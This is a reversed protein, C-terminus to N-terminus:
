PAAALANYLAAGQVPYAKIWEYFSKALVPHDHLFQLFAIVQAPHAAYWSAFANTVAAHVGGVTVGDIELTFRHLPDPIIWTLPAPSGSDAFVPEAVALPLLVSIALGVLVLRFKKMPQEKIQFVRPQGAVTSREAAM